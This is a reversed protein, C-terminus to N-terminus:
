LFVLPAFAGNGGKLLDAFMEPEFADVGGPFMQPKDFAFAEEM